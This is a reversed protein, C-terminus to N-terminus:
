TPDSGSVCPAAGEEEEEEGEEGEVVSKVRNCECEKKKIIQQVGQQQLGPEAM